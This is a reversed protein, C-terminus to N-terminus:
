PTQEGVYDDPLSIVAIPLFKGNKFNYYYEGNPREEDPRGRFMILSSDVKFDLPDFYDSNASAIYYPFWTVYGTKADFIFGRICETGCGFTSVIYHGAFNPKLGSTSWIITRYYHDNNRFKPKHTLGKYYDSVPYQKFNPRQEDAFANAFFTAYFLSASFVLAKVM